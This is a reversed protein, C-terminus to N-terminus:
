WSEGAQRAKFSKAFKFPGPLIHFSHNSHLDLWLIYCLAYWLITYIAQTFDLCTQIILWSFHRWCGDSSGSEGWVEGPRVLNPLHWLRPNTDFTQIDVWPESAGRLIKFSRVSQDNTVSPMVKCFSKALKISMVKFSQVKISIYCLAMLVMRYIDLWLGKM